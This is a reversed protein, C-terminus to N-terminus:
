KYRYKTYMYEKSARLMNGKDQKVHLLQATDCAGDVSYALLKM